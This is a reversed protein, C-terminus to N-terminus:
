RSMNRPATRTTPRPSVSDRALGKRRFVDWCENSVHVLNSYVEVHLGITLAHDVLDTFNPHMTPEGGNDSSLQPTEKLDQSFPAM